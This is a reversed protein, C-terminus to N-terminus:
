KQTFNYCVTSLLIKLHSYFSFMTCCCTLCVKSLSSLSSVKICDMICNMLHSTILCSM